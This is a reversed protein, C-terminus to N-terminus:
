LNDFEWHHNPCLFKLNEPANIENVTAEPPFSKIPKIHCIEVHAAYGCVECPPLKGRMQKRIRSRVHSMVWSPHKNKIKGLVEGLTLSDAKLKRERRCPSCFKRQPDTHKALCGQCTREKRKRKPALTNAVKAACSRSCFKPNTTPKSCLSCLM